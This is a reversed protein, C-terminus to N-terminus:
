DPTPRTAREVVLVEVPARVSTLRLGLQEQLATFLSAEDPGPPPVPAGPPLTGPSITSADAAYTLTFDWTGTLGTRDVVARQVRTSLALTLESLPVGAGQISGVRGRLGCPPGGAPPPAGGRSIAAFLAPCDTASKVLARGPTGDDRVTTLAFVPLERTESRLGLGFRDALLARLALLTDDPQGPAAPRPLGALRATVDWRAAEIPELRGVLQFGQIEYAFEILERLTANDAVFRGGPRRGVSSGAGAGIREKISAAEFTIAPAATPQQAAAATTFLVCALGALAPIRMGTYVPEVAALNM